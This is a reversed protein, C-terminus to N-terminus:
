TDGECLFSEAAIVLNHAASGLHEEYQIKSRLVPIVVAKGSEDNKVAVLLSSGDVSDKISVSFRPKHDLLHEQLREIFDEDKVIGAV